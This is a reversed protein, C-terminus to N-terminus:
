CARELFLRAYIYLAPAAFLLSDIVDLVGGMGLLIRGSDKVGAARKLLSETLDGITGAVPLLVGLVVADVATIKVVGLNGDSFLYFLCSAAIGVALGGILGEWTKAPSVRPLFKHRGISIGIFYAGIDTFKVVIILYMVLARGELGGWVM